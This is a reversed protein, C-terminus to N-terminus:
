LLISHGVELCAFLVSVILCVDTNKQDKKSIPSVLSEIALNYNKLAYEDTRQQSPEISRKRHELNEHMSGLALFAYRISPEHHAAQFLDQGWFDKGLFGAFQPASNQLFFGFSRRDQDSVIEVSPSRSVVSSSVNSTSSPM